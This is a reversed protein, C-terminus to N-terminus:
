VLVYCHMPGVEGLFIWFDSKLVISHNLSLSSCITDVLFCVSVREDSFPAIIAHWTGICLVSSGQAMFGM